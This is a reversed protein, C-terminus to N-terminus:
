DRLKINKVDDITIRQLEETTILNDKSIRNAQNSIAKEFFNRVDRANAFNEKKNEYREEFYDHVFKNVEDDVILESDRCLKNFISLLEDPNYDDFFIYKNFRSKLGPNSDLFSEMENTYGAVIVIFDDRHDEMFKLLTDIAEKGFDNSDKNQSLMYAEDIFLIGGLSKQCMEKVKIATQGVYGGVLESRDVEFFTGKSLVGLKYYIQAIIRAVTTKGTGPNGTFVLHLSMPQQTIKKDERIKRVKILNILSNVDEKVNELGILDNLEGVLEDLTKKDVKSDIKVEEKKVNDNITNTLPVENLSRTKEFESELYNWYEDFRKERVAKKSPNSNVMLKGLYDYITKLEEYADEYKKDAILNNIESKRLYFISWDTPASKGQGDFAVKMMQPNLFTRGVISNLNYKSIISFEYNSIDGNLINNDYIEAINTM